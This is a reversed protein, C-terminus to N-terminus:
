LQWSTQLTCPSAKTRQPVHSQFLYYNELESLFLFPTNGSCNADNGSRVTGRKCPLLTPPAITRPTFLQQITFEVLSLPRESGLDHFSVGKYYSLDDLTYNKLKAQQETTWNFIFSANQASINLIADIVNFISENYLNSLNLGKAAVLDLLPSNNLATKAVILPQISQTFVAQYQHLTMNEVIETSTRLFSSLRDRDMGLAVTVRSYSDRVIHQVMVSWHSPVTLNFEYPSVNLQNPLMQPDFDIVQNLQRLSNWLIDEVDCNDCIRSSNVSFLEGAKSVIKARYEDLLQSYSNKSLSLLQMTIERFSEQSKMIAATKSVLQGVTNLNIAGLIPWDPLSANVAWAIKPWPLKFLDEFVALLSVNDAVELSFKAALDNVTLTSAAVVLAIKRCSMENDVGLLSEILDQPRKSLFNGESFNCFGRTELITYNGLVDIGISSYNYLLLVESISINIKEEIFKLFTVGDISGSTIGIATIIQLLTETEIAEKGRLLRSFMSDWKSELQALSVNQLNEPKEQLLQAFNKMSVGLQNEGSRIIENKVFPIMERWETPSLKELEGPNLDLSVEIRSVSVNFKDVLYQITLAFVEIPFLVDYQAKSKSGFHMLEARNTNFLNYLFNLTGNRHEIIKAWIDVNDADKLEVSKQLIQLLATSLCPDLQLSSTVEKYSGENLVYLVIWDEMKLGFAWVNRRWPLGTVKEVLTVFSVSSNTFLSFESKLQSMNKTRASVYFGTSTCVPAAERTGVIEATINLPTKNKVTSTNLTCYLPLDYIRLSQLIFRQESNYGYLLNLESSNFGSASLVLSLVFSNLYADDSVANQSLYMIIPTTEFKKKHRKADLIRNEILEKLKAISLEVSQVGLFTLLNETSTQLDRSESQVVSDVITVIVSKWEQKPLNYLTEESLQLSFVIHSLNLRFNAITVELFRRFLLPSSAGQLSAESLATLNAVDSLSLNFTERLLTRVFLRHNETKNILSGDARLKLLLVVAESVSDNLLTELSVEGIESLQPLTVSDLFEWDPLSVNVSEYVQRWTLNSVDTLIELVSANLINVSGKFSEISKGKISILVPCPPLIYLSGVVKWSVEPLTISLLIETSIGCFRFIQYFTSKGIAKAQDRTLNYLIGFERTSISINKHHQLIKALTVDNYSEGPLIGSNNILSSTSNKDLIAKKPLFPFVMEEFRSLNVNLFDQVEIDMLEALANVTPLELLRSFASSSENVMAHVVTEWNAPDYSSSLNTTPIGLNSAVKDLDFVFRQGVFTLLEKQYDAPTKASAILRDSYNSDLENFPISYSWYYDLNELDAATFFSSSAFSFVAGKIENLNKSYTFELTWSKETRAHHITVKDYKAESGFDGTFIRKLPMYLFPLIFQGVVPIPTIILLFLWVRRMKKRTIVEPSLSSTLLIVGQFQFLLGFFDIVIAVFNYQVIRFFVEMM